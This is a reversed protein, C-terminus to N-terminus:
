RPRIRRRRRTIVNSNVVYCISVVARANLEVYFAFYVFHRAFCCRAIARLTVRLAARLLLMCYYCALYCAFIASVIVASSAFMNYEVVYFCFYVFHCPLVADQLLVCPLVCFYGICCCREVCLLM